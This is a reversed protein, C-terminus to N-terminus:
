ERPAVSVAGIVEEALEPGGAAGVVLVHVFSMLDAGDTCVLVAHRLPDRGYTGDVYAAAAAAAGAVTVDVEGVEPTHLDATAQDIERTLHGRVGDADPTVTERIAFQLTVLPTGNGTWRWLRGAVGTLVEPPESPAPFSVPGARHLQWTALM